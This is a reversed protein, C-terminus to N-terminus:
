RRAPPSGNWARPTSIPLRAGPPSEARVPHPLAFVPLALVPLRARNRHGPGRPGPRSPMTPKPCNRSRAGIAFRTRARDSADGMGLLVLRATRRARSDRLIARPKRCLRSAGAWTAAAEPLGSLVDQAESKEVLRIPIATDTPPAFSLPMTTEARDGPWGLPGGRRRLGPDSRSTRLSGFRTCRASGWGSLARRADRRLGGTAAGSLGSCAGAVRALSTM